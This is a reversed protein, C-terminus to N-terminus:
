MIYEIAWSFTVNGEYLSRLYNVLYTSIDEADFQDIGLTLYHKSQADLVAFGAPLSPLEQAM